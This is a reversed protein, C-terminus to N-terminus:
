GGSRRPSPWSRIVHEWADRWAQTFVPLQKGWKHDFAALAAQAGDADIATHIPRPDKVVQDYQRRPVYKLSHRILQVICTQVVTLPFIAEIPEPLSCRLAPVAGAQDPPLLLRCSRLAILDM